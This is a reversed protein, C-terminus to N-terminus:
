GTFRPTVRVADAPVAGGGRTAADGAGAVATTTTPSATSPSATTPPTTTPPPDDPCGVTVETDLIARAGELWTVVVTRAGDAYPGFTLVGGDSDDVGEAVVVGDIAVDYTEVSEDGIAVEITGGDATCVPEAAAQPEGEVTITITATATTFGDSVTYSITETGVFGADPTYTFSGDGAIDLTGDTASDFAIVALPDGDADTDDALVGESAGVTLVEGAHVEYDDDVAVPPTNVRVQITVTASATAVGDSITYTFGDTGVFGADPTYSFSGDLSPNVVGDTASTFSIVTLADGDGDSDNALLGEGAAVVLPTDPPTLYLDDLATPAENTVSITVSASAVEVGDSISYTFGDTGVFGADPTYSFSGDLSPNVVGDTASTFSIVTLADGDGDFDNALLGEGAAVVLPTNARTSYVDDVATPAENTVSITVTASAVEVGDSITYTFGDTGVFGTDPTYSFSGDLSPNVVGDTASTFSIVTLADGDADFDNALLGEGAAVVLPTNARTSYVDDVAVPAVAAAPAAALVVVLASGVLLAVVKRM